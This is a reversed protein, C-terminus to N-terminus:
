CKKEYLCIKETILSETEARFIFVIIYPHLTYSKKICTDTNHSPLISLETDPRKAAALAMLLYMRFHIKTFCISRLSVSSCFSLLQISSFLSSELKLASFTDENAGEKTWSRTEIGPLACTTM